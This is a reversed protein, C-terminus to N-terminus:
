LPTLIREKKVFYAWESFGIEKLRKKVLEFEDGIREPTHSDSGFTVKV